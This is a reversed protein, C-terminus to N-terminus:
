KLNQETDLSTLNILETMQFLPTLSGDASNPEIKTIMEESMTCSNIRQKRLLRFTVKKNECESEDHQRQATIM